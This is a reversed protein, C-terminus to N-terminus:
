PLRRSRFKELDQRIKPRFESLRSRMEDTMQRLPPEDPGLTVIWFCLCCLYTCVRIRSLIFFIHNDSRFGFYNHAIDIWVCVISYVGFAQSIRSAHTRWQLGATASLALLGVFLEIMCVSSFFKGKIVVIDLVKRAPPTALWTLCTAVILSLCILGAFDNRLDRAWVGLPRFTRAALEYVVGFQLAVDLIALSWYTHSYQKETGFNFVCYLTVTRAINVAILTTFIPYKNVRNRGILTCLLAVHGVFTAAWFIFDLRSLHM